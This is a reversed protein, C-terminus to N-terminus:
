FAGSVALGYAGPLVSPALATSGRRREARRALGVSMVVLGTLTVASGVGIAVYQGAELRQNDRALERANAYSEGDPNGSNIRALRDNNRDIVLALATVSGATGALGLGFLTAGAVIAAREPAAEPRDAVDIPTVASKPAPKERASAAARLRSLAAEREAIRKRAEAIQVRVDAADPPDGKGELYAEFAPIAEDYHGLRMHCQAINYQLDPSPHLAHAREFADRAARYDAAEFLIQGRRYEEVAADPPSGDHTDSMADGPSLSAAPTAVAVREDPATPDGALTLSVITCVLNVASHM